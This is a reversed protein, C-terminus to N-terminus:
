YEYEVVTTKCGSEAQTAGARNMLTSPLWLAMEHVLIGPIVQTKSMRVRARDELERVRTVFPFHQMQIDMWSLIKRRLKSTREVMVRRQDDSPHQGTAAVDAGLVRRLSVDKDFFFHFYFIEVYQQEELQVGMAICETVHMDGRVEDEDETGAQERAAAERALDLRVKALHTDKASSEFPNPPKPNEEWAKKTEEWAMAMQSWEYVEEKALGAEMEALTLRTEVMEPVVAEIKRRM